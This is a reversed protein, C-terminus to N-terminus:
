TQEHINIAQLWQLSKMSKCALVTRPETGRAGRRMCVFCRARLFAQTLPFLRQSPSAWKAVKWPCRTARSFFSSFIYLILSTIICLWFYEDEGCCVFSYVLQEWLIILDGSCQELRSLHCPGGCTFLTFICSVASDNLTLKNIWHTWGHFLLRGKNLTGKCVNGGGHQVSPTLCEELMNEMQEADWLHEEMHDLCRLSLNM